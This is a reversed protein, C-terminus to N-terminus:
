QASRASAISVRRPTGCRVRSCAPPWSSGASARRANRSQNWCSGRAGWGHTGAAALLYTLGKDLMANTCSSDPATKFQAPNDCSPLSGTMDHRAPVDQAHRAHVERPHAPYGGRDAQEGAVQNPQAVPDRQHRRVIALRVRLAFAVALEAVTELHQAQGRS